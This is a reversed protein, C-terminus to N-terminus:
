RAESGKDEVPVEHRPPAQLSLRIFARARDSKDVCDAYKGVEEQVKAATLLGAAKAYEVTADLGKVKAFDLEEYAVALGDRCQKAVRSTPDAACGNLLFLPIALIAIPRIKM